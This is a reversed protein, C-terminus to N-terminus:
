RKVWDPIYPLGVPAMAQVVDFAGTQHWDYYVVNMKAGVVHFDPEPGSVIQASVIYAFVRGDKAIGLVQEPMFYLSQLSATRGCQDVAIEPIAVVHKKFSYEISTFPTEGDTSKYPHTSIVRGRNVFGVDFGTGRKEVRVMRQQEQSCSSPSAANQGLITGALGVQVLLMLLIRRM